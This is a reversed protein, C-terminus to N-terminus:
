MHGKVERPTIGLFEGLKAMRCGFLNGGTETSSFRTSTEGREEAEVGMGAETMM